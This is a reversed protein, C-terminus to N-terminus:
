SRLTATAIIEGSSPSQVEFTEANEFKRLRYGLGILGAVSTIWGAEKGDVMLKATTPVLPKDFTLKVLHKNTKGARKM